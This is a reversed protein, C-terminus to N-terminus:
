SVPHQQNRTHAVDSTVAQNARSCANHQNELFKHKAETLQSILLWRTHHEYECAM